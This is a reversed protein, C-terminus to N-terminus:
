RTPSKNKLFKIGTKPKDECDNDSLDLVVVDNPM